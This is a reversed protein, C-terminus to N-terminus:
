NTPEIDLAKTFDRIAEARQGLVSYVNGRNMLANAHLSDLILAQSLDAMASDLKNLQGYAAGRNAWVEALKTDMKIAMTCDNITGIANGMDLYTKGRSNYTDASPKIMLATDLNGLARKFQKEERFFLARNRWATTSKADYELAQTWLTDSNKWTKVHTFTTYFCAIVYLSFALQAMFSRALVGETYFAFILFFGFYPVYTFRDALYGQGAGVIQAVFIFNVFFFIWGFVLVTFGKRYAWVIGVFSAILLLSNIYMDASITAPYAYLPSMVWPFICKGVYVAYTHFGIVIRELGNYLVTDETITKANKLLVITLCGYILSGIFFHIKELFKIILLNHIKVQKSHIYVVYYHLVFNDFKIVENEALKM